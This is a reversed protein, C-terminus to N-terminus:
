GRISRFPSDLAARTMVIALPRPGANIAAIVEDLERYALLPLIPGFIERQM